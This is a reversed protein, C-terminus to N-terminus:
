VRSVRKMRPEFVLVWLLGLLGLACGLLLWELGPERILKVAVAGPEHAGERALQFRHGVHVFSSKQGLDYRALERGQADRVTIVPKLAAPDPPKPQLVLRLRGNFLAQPEPQDERGKGDLWVTKEVGTGPEMVRLRLAPRDVRAATKPEPHAVFAHLTEAHEFQQLPTVSLGPAVIFPRNLVLPELRQVTRHEVLRIRQDERTIVVFRHQWEEGVRQYRLTLGQPLNPANLADTVEPTRASLLVRRSEGQPFELALEWWPDLPQESKSFPQPNGQADSRVAFDPYARVVRLRYGPFDWVTGPRAPLQLTRGSFTARLIEASPLRPGLSALLAPTWTDQYLVSFRGGPEEHRSGLSRRSFLWGILPEPAGIGLMVRLAPHEPAEPNDQIGGQDVANLLFSTLEFPYGGPFTGKLGEQVAFRQAAKADKGSSAVLEYVPETPGMQLADLQLQFGPLAYPLRTPDDRQFRSIPEQLRLNQQGRVLGFHRQLGGVLVLGPVVVWLLSHIARRSLLAQVRTM